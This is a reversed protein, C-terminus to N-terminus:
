DFESLDDAVFDTASGDVVEMLRGTFLVLARRVQPRFHDQNYDHKKRHGIVLEAVEKEIGLSSLATRVVRRLDHLVWGKMVYGPRLEQYIAEVALRFSDIVKAVGHIAIQGNTTSFVCDGWGEPQERRIEELFETAARTLPVRLEGLVEGHKVREKPIIWLKRTWDIESWRMQAVEEKRRGGLLVLMKFFPGWPYRMAAAAMMYARMEYVDLFRSRVRRKLGMAKHTLTAVPNASLGYEVRHRNYAWTFFGRVLNLANYAQAESRDRIANVIKEVMERTVDAVPGDLWPNRAPDLFERKLTATDDPVHRNFERSPMWVLYDEMASKFTRRKKLKEEREIREKELQPDLGCDILENWAKAIERATELSMEPFNGITRRSPVKAGAIRTQLVFVKTLSGVRVFLNPTKGDPKEYRRGDPRPSFSIIRETTLGRPRPM